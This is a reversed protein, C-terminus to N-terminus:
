PKHNKPPTPLPQWHTVDAWMSKFIREGESQYKQLYFQGMSYNSMVAVESTEQCCLVDQGESPLRDEVSIWKDVATRDIMDKAGKIYALRKEDLAIHYIDQREQSLREIREKAVMPYEKEAMAIITGDDVAMADLPPQSESTTDIQNLATAFDDSDTVIQGRQHMLRLHATLQKIKNM